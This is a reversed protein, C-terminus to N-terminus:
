VNQAKDKEISEALLFLQDLEDNLCGIEDNLKSVERVQGMLVYLQNAFAYALEPDLRRDFIGTSHSDICLFGWYQKFGGGEYKRTTIHRIPCVLTSRYTLRWNKVRPFYGFILNLRPKGVIDFSSNKYVEDTHLSKRWRKILNNELFFRSYDSNDDFLLEFDTNDKLYHKQDSDKQPDEQYRKSSSTDRAYTVLEEDDELVKICANCRKGTLLTFCKSIDNVIRESLQHLEETGARGYKFDQLYDKILHSTHALFYISESYRHKKTSERYITYVIFFTTVACLYISLLIEPPTQGFYYYGLGVGLVGIVASFRGFWVWISNDKPKPLQEEYKEIYINAQM